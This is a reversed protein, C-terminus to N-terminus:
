GDNAIFARGWRDYLPLRSKILAIAASPDSAAFIQDDPLDAYRKRQDLPAGALRTGWGPVDLAVVLRRMTWAFAIESLTGAGGGIAAVADANAVLSNRAHNLGTAIAIDVWPNANNPDDQPLIGITDGEKYARSDHAGRCAAEMVGALGGTVIRFGDDIALMGLTRACEYVQSGPQAGADGIVAITPRRKM